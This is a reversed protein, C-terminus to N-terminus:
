EQQIKKLLVVYHSLTGLGNKLVSLSMNQDDLDHFIVVM